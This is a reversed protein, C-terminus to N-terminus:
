HSQGKQQQIYRLNTQVTEFKPNIQLAQQCAKEAEAWNQMKSYAACINNYAEAYNPRLKIAMKAYEICDPYRLGNFFMTSVQLFSEPNPNAKAMAASRYVSENREKINKVNRQAVEFDPRYKLALEGYVVSQDWEGLQNYCCSVNNYADANTSDLKLVEKCAEICEKYKGENFYALSLDIYSQPSKATQVKEKERDTITKRNKAIDVYKLVEPDNPFLKVSENVLKDLDDWMYKDAYV